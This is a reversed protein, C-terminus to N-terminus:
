NLFYYDIVIGEYLLSAETYTIPVYLNRHLFFSPTCFFQAPCFFDNRIGCIIDHMISKGVSIMDSDSGAARIEIIGKKAKYIIIANKNNTSWGLVFPTYFDPFKLRDFSEVNPAYVLMKKKLFCLIGSIIKKRFSLDSKLINENKKNYFSINFHLGSGYDDFYPKTSFICNNKKLIHKILFLQKLLYFLDHHCSTVIEFQKMGKEKEISGFCDVFYVLESLTDETHADPAYFELEIGYFPKINLSQFFCDVQSFFGDNVIYM